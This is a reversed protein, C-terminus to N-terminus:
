PMEVRLRRGTRFVPNRKDVDLKHVEGDANVASQLGKTVGPTSSIFFKQGDQTPFPPEHWTGRRINLVADGPVLFARVAAFDPFGDALPADPAAVVSVFPIGGLPIFTQTVGHHRELYRIDGGRYGVRFYIFEVPEDAELLMPGHIANLGNYLDIPLKPTAEVSVVEGFPAFAEPTIPEPVITFVDSQIDTM